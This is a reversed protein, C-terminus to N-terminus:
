DILLHNVAQADINSHAETARESSYRISSGTRNAHETAADVDELQSQASEINEIAIDPEPEEEGFEVEQFSDSTSTALAVAEELQALSPQETTSDETPEIKTKSKNASGIDSSLHRYNDRLAQASLFSSSIKDVM